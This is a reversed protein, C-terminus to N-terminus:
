ASNKLDADAEIDSEDEPFRHVIASPITHSLNNATGSFVQKLHKQYLQLPM